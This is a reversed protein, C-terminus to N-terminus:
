VKLRPYRGLMDLPQGIPFSIQYATNAKANKKESRDNFSVWYQKTIM